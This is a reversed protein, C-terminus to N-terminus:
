TLVGDLDALSGEPEPTKKLREAVLAMAMFTYFPRNDNLDGSVMANVMTFILGALLAKGRATGSLTWAKAHSWLIMLVTYLGCIWGMELFVELLINHPYQRGLGNWPDIYAGFGGFGTGYPYDPIKDVCREFFAQRYGESKGYEGEFFHEVRALSGKPAFSISAGLILAFVGGYLALRLPRTGLKGRSTAYILVVTILAAVIPGRSGSFLTIVGSLALLPFLILGLKRKEMILILAYLFVFGGGRGLGITNTGFATLRELEQGSAANKTADLVLAVNFFAFANMLRYLDQQERALLFPAFAALVTLTYFFVVKEDSYDTPPRNLAPYVMLLFWIGMIIPGTGKLQIRWEKVIRFAIVGIVALGYLLTIDVPIWSFRPDAKFEGASLLGALMLWPFHSKFFRGLGALADRLWSM